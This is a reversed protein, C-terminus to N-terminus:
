LKVSGNNYVTVDSFFLDSSFGSIYNYSHIKMPGTRKQVEDM